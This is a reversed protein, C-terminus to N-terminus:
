LTQINEFRSIRLGFVLHVRIIILGGDGGKHTLRARPAYVSASHADFLRGTRCGRGRRKSLRLEIAYFEVLLGKPRSSAQEYM